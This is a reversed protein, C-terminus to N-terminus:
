CISHNKPGILELENYFRTRNKLPSHYNHIVISFMKEQIIQIQCEFNNEMIVM